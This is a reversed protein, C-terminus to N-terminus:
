GPARPWLIACLKDCHASVEDLEKAVMASLDLTKVATGSIDISILEEFLGRLLVNKLRGCGRFSIRELGGFCGEDIIITEVLPSKDATMSLSSGSMMVRNGSFEFHEMKEMTGQFIDGSSCSIITSKTVRLKRINPLRHGQLQNTDWTTGTVILERLQAMLDLMPASLIGDCRTNLIHLVLLRGFFGAAGVIKNTEEETDKEDHCNDLWLFRLNHCHVSPPSSFKFTRRSLKLVSLRDFDQFMDANPIAGIHIPLSELPSWTWQNNSYRVLHSPFYKNYRDVDLLMERQIAHAPQWLEDDEGRQQRQTGDYIWYNVAHTALDYDVMFHHGICCLKLIHLIFSQALQDISIGRTSCVMSIQQAVEAAEQRILVPWFEDPDGGDRNSASVFVDTKNLVNWIKNRPYLRFRGQFTWLVKNDLYESMPFGFSALDIDESSGNHFIVLFRCNLDKIRRHM